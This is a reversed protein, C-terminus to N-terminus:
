LDALFKDLNLRSYLDVVLNDAEPSPRLDAEVALRVAVVLRELAVLAAAPADVRPRARGPRLHDVLLERPEEGAVPLLRSVVDPAALAEPDPQGLGLQLEAEVSM